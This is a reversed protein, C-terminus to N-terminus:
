PQMTASTSAVCQWKGNPMRMWTDSWREKTDVAKGKDDTGKGTWVGTAIATNGHGVV